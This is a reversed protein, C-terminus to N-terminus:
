KLWDRLCTMLYATGGPKALITCFRSNPLRECWTRWPGDEKDQEAAQYYEQLPQDIGYGGVLGSLHTLLDGITIERAANVLKMKDDSYGSFVKAGQFEPIFASVPDKL